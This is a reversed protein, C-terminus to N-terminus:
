SASHAKMWPCGPHVDAENRRVGRADCTRPKPTNQNAFRDRAAMAPSGWHKGRESLEKAAAAGGNAAVADALPRDLAVLDVDEFPPSQNLVEHTAFTAQTM